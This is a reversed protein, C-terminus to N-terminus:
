PQSARIQALMRRAPENDPRAKLFIELQEAAENARGPISLLAMAINYRIEAYAPMLRLAEQYQAVAEAARGQAYLATGLNNHAGAYGPKLRLAQQYEAIAADLEGPMKSM